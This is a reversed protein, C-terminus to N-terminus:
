ESGLSVDGALVTHLTGKSDRVLLAGEANVSEAVGSVGKEFSVTKGPTNLRRKWADFLSQASLNASWFDIRALLFTLLDLRDVSRGLAPEISIAKEALETGSFDIRVNLGMGLVVGLLESGRWIVEPLVGCVKRKNLQVDNPWKIAVDAAGLNELLESIVVAGLMTIRGLHTSQPRLIVSLILATGPPTFWVRGLRGRGQVQEDTVVVAGAPAGQSLWKLAADNTSDIRPYYRVPRPSFHALIRDETLNM